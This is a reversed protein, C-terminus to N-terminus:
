LDALNPAFRDTHPLRAAACPLALADHDHLHAGPPRDIGGARRISEAVGVVRAGRVCGHPNAATPDLDICHAVDRWAFLQGHIVPLRVMLPTQGAAAARRPADAAELAASTLRAARMAAEGAPDR